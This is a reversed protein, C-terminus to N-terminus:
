KACEVGYQVCGNKNGMKCARQFDACSNRKDSTKLYAMGRTFYSQSNTPNITIALSYSDLAGRFDKLQYQIYGLNVYATENKDNLTIAKLADAKANELDDQQIKVSSINSYITSKLSDSAFPIAKEFEKIAADFQNMIGYVKASIVLVEANNPKAKIANGIIEQVEKLRDLHTYAVVTGSLAEEQAPQLSLIETFTKLADTYQKAVLQKNGMELKVKLSAPQQAFAGTASLM